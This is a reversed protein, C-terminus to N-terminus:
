FGSISCTFVLALTAGNRVVLREPDVFVLDGDETLGWPGSPVPVDARTEGTGLDAMALWTQGDFDQYSLYLRAGEPALQLNSAFGFGPPEGPPVSLVPGIEEGAADYATVVGGEAVYTRGQGPDSVQMPTEPTPVAVAPDASSVVGTDLAIASACLQGDQRGWTYAVNGQVM